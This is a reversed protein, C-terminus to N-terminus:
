GYIILNAHTPDM